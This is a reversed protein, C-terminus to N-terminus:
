SYPGQPTIVRVGEKAWEEDLDVELMAWQERTECLIAAIRSGIVPDIRLCYRADAPAPPAGEGAPIVPQPQSAALPSAAAIMGLAFLAAKYAM